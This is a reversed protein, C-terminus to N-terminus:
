RRLLRRDGLWDVLRDPWSSVSALSSRRGLNFGHGGSALLHVEAPVEIAEYRRALELVAHRAPPDDFAAVLFAPPSDPPLTAPLGVAGPYIEISFNPRASLRDIPDAASPDGTAAGFSVFHAVEAGASWGWIGIRDPEIDLEKARARLLRIARAADAASEVDTRYTSNPEGSLRYKLVFAAVGHRALFRAPELGEPGFVLREHGGGPLIVVATGQSRRPLVATLTPSHVNKVWWPGTEEAEARRHESGPAGQPWLPLTRTGESQCAYLTPFITLLKAVVRSPGM